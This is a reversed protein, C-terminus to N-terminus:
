GIWGVSEITISQDSMTFCIAIPDVDIRWLDESVENSYAMPFRRLRYEILNVASNIDAWRSPYSLSLQALGDIAADKWEIDYM